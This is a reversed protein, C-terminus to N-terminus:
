VVTGEHWRRIQLPMVPSSPNRLFLSVFLVHGMVSSVLGRAGVGESGTDDEGSESCCLGYRDVVCTSFSHEPRSPFLRCPWFESRCRM